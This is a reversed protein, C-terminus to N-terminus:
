EITYIDEEVVSRQKYMLVQKELMANEKLDDVALSQDCVPCKIRKSRALRFVDLLAHKSFTHGCTSTVPHDLLTQTLPCRFTVKQSSVVVEDEDITDHIYTDPMVQDAHNIMWLAHRYDRYLEMQAARTPHDLAVTPLQRSTWADVLNQQNIVRLPELQQKYLSVHHETDLLDVFLTNCPQLSAHVSETDSAINSVHHRCKYLALAISNVDQMEQTFEM